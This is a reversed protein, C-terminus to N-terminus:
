ERLEDLMHNRSGEISAHLGGNIAIRESGWEEELSSSEEGYCYGEEVEALLPGIGIAVTM